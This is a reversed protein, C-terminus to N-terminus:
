LLIFLLGLSNCLKLLDVSLSLSRPPEGTTENPSRVLQSLPVVAREREIRDAADSDVVLGCMLGTVVRQVNEYPLYLM